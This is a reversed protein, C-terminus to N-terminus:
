EILGMKLAIKVAHPASKAGLRRLISSRQNKITQPSVGSELAIERNTLGDATMQLIETLRPTLIGNNDDCFRARHYYM